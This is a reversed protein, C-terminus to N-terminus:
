NYKRLIHTFSPFAFPRWRTKLYLHLTICVLSSAKSAATAKTSIRCYFLIHFFTFCFLKSWLINWGLYVRSVWESVWESARGCLLVFHSAALSLPTAAHASLTPPLPHVASPYSPLLYSNCGKSTNEFRWPCRVRRSRRLSAFCPADLISPFRLVPNGFWRALSQVYVLRGVPLFVFDSFFVYDSSGMVTWSIQWDIM